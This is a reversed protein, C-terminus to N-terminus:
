RHLPKEWWAPEAQAPLKDRLKPIGTAFSHPAQLYAELLVVMLVAVPLVERITPATFTAMIEAGSLDVQQFIELFM